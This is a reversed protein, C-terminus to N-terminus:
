ALSAANQILSLWRDTGQIDIGAAEAPTKNNIGSHPKIYNHHLIAISFIVSDEKKIGRAPDFRDTFEGNLREQTNTNCILNRIHIDRIQISKLGKLKNFVKKFAIEYRDLGDTVFIRPIKNATDRAARLLPIADYKLKTPSTDWSLVFRTGLDMVAMIWWDMGNVNQQKEDCGWKNGICPPRLTNTYGGVLGVYHELWRTITDVHVHVGLHGLTMQIKNVSMAMGYLMLTLTIYIPATHRYEFGLNDRFRRSCKKCKFLQKDGSKGRYTGYRTYQECKCDPCKLKPKEIAINDHTRLTDDAHVLLMHEVAAIHKCRCRNGTTHYKCECTPSDLGFSVRYWVGEESQSAVDWRMDTLTKIQNEKQYIQLGRRTITEDSSRGIRPKRPKKRGM